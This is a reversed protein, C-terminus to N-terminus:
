IHNINSIFNNETGKKEIIALHNNSKGFEKVKVDGLNLELLEKRIQESKIQKDFQM